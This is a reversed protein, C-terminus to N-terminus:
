AEDNLYESSFRAYFPRSRLSSARGRVAGLAADPVEVHLGRTGPVIREVLELPRRLRDGTGLRAVRTLLRRGLADPLAQAVAAAALTVRRQWVLGAPSLGPNRIEPLPAAGPELGLRAELEGVFAAPDDRLLEFPLVIVRDRGFAHEYLAVVGDYDLAEAIVAPDPRLQAAAHRGGARLYQSYGSLMAGRFGRTVILVTAEGALARLM